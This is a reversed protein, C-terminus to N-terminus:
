EIKAKIIKKVQSKIRFKQGLCDSKINNSKSVVEIDIYDPIESGDVEVIDGDRVRITTENDLFVAKEDGNVLIKVDRNTRKSLLKLTIEGYQYLFEESKLPTGEIGGDIIFLKARISPNTLSAQAVILIVFM